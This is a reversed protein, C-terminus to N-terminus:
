ALYNAPYKELFDLDKQVLPAKQLTGTLKELVNAQLSLTSGNNLMAEFTVLHSDFCKPDEAAFTQISLPDLGDSLLGLSSALKRTIFTRQSGTDFFIRAFKTHHTTPNITTAKATLLIASVGSQLAAGIAVHALTDKQVTNHETNTNLANHKPATDDPQGNPPPQAMAAASMTPRRAGWSQPQQTQKPFLNPCLFRHHKGISKCNYCHYNAKNPCSPALHGSQMCIFCRRLSAIKEKRAALTNVIKCDDSYHNQKECFICPMKPQKQRSGQNGQPVQGRGVMTSLTGTMPRPFTSSEEPRQHQVLNYHRQGHFTPGQPTTWQGKNQGQGGTMTRQGQNQGQGATTTRSMRDVREKLSVLNWLEERLTRMTWDMGGIRKAELEKIVDVSFKELLTQVLFPHDINEGINGLQRLIREIADIASRLESVKPGPVRLNRLQTYLAEKIVEPKGFRKHLAEVAERYNRNTISIGAIAASASGTLMGKLYTFKQVDSLNPNSHVSSDFVDWFEDWKIPSGNFSPANLKPLKLGGHFPIPAPEVTHNSSMSLRRSGDESRPVAAERDALQDMPPFENARFEFLPEPAAVQPKSLNSLQFDVESLLSELEAIKEHGNLLTELFGDDGSAVSLYLENETDFAAGKLTELYTHWEANRPDIPEIIKQIKKIEFIVNQRIGYLQEKQED